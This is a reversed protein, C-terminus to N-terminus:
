LNAGQNRLTQQLDSVSVGRPRIHRRICLAAATGAAQGLCVCTSIDRPSLFSAAKHDISICRGALLLGNTNAPVLCRYPIDFIPFEQPTYTAPSRIDGTRCKVITDPHTLGHGIDQDATLCYEGIIRRSERIGVQTGTASLYANEYGPIYKRYFNLISLLNKRTVLEARTLDFVDTSDGFASELWGSVEGHRLWKTPVREPDPVSLPMLKLPPMEPLIRKESVILEGQEIANNVIQNFRDLNKAGSTEKARSCDVNALVGQLTMMLPEPFKEYAAGASAAIDADGSADIVVEALIAHRGSKSEIIVGKVQNGETIAGVALAHLLIEVNAEELMQILIVKAM